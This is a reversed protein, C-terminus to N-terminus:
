ARGGGRQDERDVGLAGAAEVAPAAARHRVLRLGVQGLLQVKRPSAWALVPADRMQAALISIETAPRM